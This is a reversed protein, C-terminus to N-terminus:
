KVRADEPLHDNQEEIKKKYFQWSYISKQMFVIADTSMGCKYRRVTWILSKNKYLKHMKPEGQRNLTCIHGKSFMFYEYCMEDCSKKYWNRM